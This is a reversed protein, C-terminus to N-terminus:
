RSWRFSESQVATVMSAIGGPAFFTFLILILGFIANSLPGDGDLTYFGMPISIRKTLDRVWVVFLGGFISGQLTGVGGIVLGIILEIALLFTFDQGAVFGKDM